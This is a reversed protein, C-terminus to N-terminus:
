RKLRSLCSRRRRPSNARRAIIRTPCWAGALSSSRGRLCGAGLTTLDQLMSATCRTSEPSISSVESVYFTKARARLLRWRSKEAPAAVGDILREVKRKAEKLTSGSAILKDQLNIANWCKPEKGSMEKLRISSDGNRYSGAEERYLKLIM